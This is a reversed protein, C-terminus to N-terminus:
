CYKSYTYRRKEKDPFVSDHINEFKLNRKMNMISDIVGGKGISRFSTIINRINPSSLRQFRDMVDELSKEQLMEKPGEDNDILHNDLFQKSAALAITSNTATPNEEVQIAILSSITDVSERSTGSAVPHTHNGLHICAWTMLAIDSFAYYIRADCIGVYELPYKCIKCLLTSGKPPNAGVYFPASSYGCWETKNHKSSRKFYDCELTTCVLHGACSSKRFKLVDQNHINSTMTQCWAHGDYQKNM